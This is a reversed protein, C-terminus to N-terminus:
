QEKKILKIKNPYGDKLPDLKGGDVFINIYPGAYQIDIIKRIGTPFDLFSNLKIEISGNNQIFFGNNALSIGNQWNQDTLNHPTFYIPSFILKEQSKFDYMEGYLFEPIDSFILKASFFIANKSGRNQALEKCKELDSIGEYISRDFLLNAYGRISINSCLTSKESISISKKFETNKKHIEEFNSYRKLTNKYTDINQIALLIIVGGWL